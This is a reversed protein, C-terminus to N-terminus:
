YEILTELRVKRKIVQLPFYFVTEGSTGSHGGAIAVDPPASDTQLFYIKKKLPYGFRPRFGALTSSCLPDRACKAGRGRFHGM